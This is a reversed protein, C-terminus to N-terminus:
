LRAQALIPKMFQVYHPFAVEPEAIDPAWRKEWELALWGEYGAGRLVAVCEAIPVDGMGCLRHQQKEHVGDPAVSDKVHVYCCHDGLNVLSQQPLEGLRFPHNIDWVAGVNPQTATDLLTCLRQTDVWDDHTEVLVSLGHEAAVAAMADLAAAAEQVGSALGQGERLFGGFVRVSPAGLAAGIEVFHRLNDLAESRASDSSALLVASSSVCPVALRAGRLRAATQALAASDCFEPLSWLDM